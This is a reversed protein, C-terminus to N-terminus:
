PKSSFESKVQEYREKHIKSVSAHKQKLTQLCRILPYSLRLSDDEASYTDATKADDLSGEMQKIHKIIRNAEETMESKERNATLILL